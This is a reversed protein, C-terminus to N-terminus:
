KTTGSRTTAAATEAGSTSAAGAAGPDTRSLELRGPQESVELTVEQRALTMEAASKAVFTQTLTLEVTDGSGGEIEISGNLNDVM